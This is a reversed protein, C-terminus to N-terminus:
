AQNEVQKSMAKKAYSCSIELHTKVLSLERGEPLIVKLQNLLTDYGDAIQEALTLGNPNLRRVEFEPNTTRQQRTAQGQPNTM